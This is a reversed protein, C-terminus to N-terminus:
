KKSKLLKITSIFQFISLLLLFGGFGRKLLDGAIIKSLFCGGVCTILGSIIIPLLDRYVVLHNKIHIVLAVIAMPIFSILNIAQAQHQKVKCFISLIPILLTGGGMGMGGILGGVAGVISFIIFGM